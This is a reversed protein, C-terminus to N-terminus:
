SKQPNWRAVANSRSGPFGRAGPPAGTTRGASPGGTAGATRASGPGGPGASSPRTSRSLRRRAPRWPRLLGRGPDIAQFPDLLLGRLEGGGDALDLLGALQDPVVLAPLLDVGLGKRERRDVVGLLREGLEVPEEALEGVGGAAGLHHGQCARELVLEGGAPGGHLPLSTSSRIRESDRGPADSASRISFALCNRASWGSLAYRM